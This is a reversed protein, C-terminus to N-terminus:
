ESCILIATVMKYTVGDLEIHGGFQESGETFKAHFFRNM